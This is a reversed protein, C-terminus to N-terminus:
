DTFTLLCFQISSLRRLLGPNFHSEPCTLSQPTWCALISHRILAIAASFCVSLISSIICKLHNSLMLATLVLSLHAVLAQPFQFGPLPSASSGNELGVTKLIEPWFHLDSQPHTLMFSSLQDPWLSFCLPTNIDCFLTVGRASLWKNLISWIRLRLMLNVFFELAFVDQLHIAPWIVSKTGSIEM